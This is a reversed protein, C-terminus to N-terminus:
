ADLVERVSHAIQEASFPKPIFSKGLQIDGDRLIARETYGSMYLVKLSPCRASLRRYLQLRDMEPMVVDTLLLEIEAAHESFM